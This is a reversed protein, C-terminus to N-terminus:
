PRITKDNGDLVPCLLGASLPQKYNQLEANPRHYYEMGTSSITKTQNTYLRNVVLHRASPKSALGIAVRFTM